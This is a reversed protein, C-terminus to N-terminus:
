CKLNDWGELDAPEFEKALSASEERRARYGEALLDQLEQEKIERIRRRLTEAIFRSKQRSGAMEDLQRALDEPLTINLRIGNGVINVEQGCKLVPLNNTKISADDLLEPFNGRSREDFRILAAGTKLDSM